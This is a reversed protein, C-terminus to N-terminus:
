IRPPVINGIPFLERIDHKTPRKRPISRQPPADPWSVPRPLGLETYIDDTAYGHRLPYSTAFQPYTAAHGLRVREPRFRFGTRPDGTIRKSHTRRHSVHSGWHRARPSGSCLRSSRASGVVAVRPMESVCFCRLRRTAVGRARTSCTNPPLSTRHVPM